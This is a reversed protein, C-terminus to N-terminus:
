LRLMNPLAELSQTFVLIHLRMRGGELWEKLVKLGLPHPDLFGLASTLRSGSHAPVAVMDGQFPFHLGGGSQFYGVLMHLGGKAHLWLEVGEIVAEFDLLELSGRAM